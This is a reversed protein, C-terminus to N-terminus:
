KSARLAAEVLEAMGIVEEERYRRGVIQVTLPANAFLEPHYTAQIRADRESVPKFNSDVPDLVPDVKAGVPLVLAPLDLLNFLSTYPIYFHWEGHRHATAVSPPLILGDIPLGTSTREKTANWHELFRQRYEDKAVNLQWSDYVSLPKTGDYVILMPHFPEGSPAFTRRLDEGSDSNYLDIALKDAKEVDLPEFGIVEYGAKIVAGVTMALARRMPPHPMVVNDWSMVGFVPKRLKGDKGKLGELRAMESRWPIEPSKPDRLWPEGALVSQAFASIGALSTTIPGLASQIGELGLLTNRAGAYPFRHLTPRLGYLGNYASPIRVSGGLDTGVGLPSGHLAVLAGEGGSSGGCSLTRNHPNDTRGYVFNDSEGFMLAQSINTRCHIVAGQEKLISVLVSDKESIYGIWSAIGMNCEVGQIQFQDKLSVPLGHLIGIPKNGNAVFAADVEKARELARDFLIETLCNTLQHAVAAGKCFATTVTLSNLEGSALKALLAGPETQVIELEAESLIGCSTTYGTVDKVDQAPMKNFPIRWETPIAAEQAAKKARTADSSWTIM